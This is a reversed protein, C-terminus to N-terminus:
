QEDLAGLALTDYLTDLISNAPLDPWRQAWSGLLGRLKIPWEGREDREIVLYGVKRFREILEPSPQLGDVCDPCPKTVRLPTEYGQEYEEIYTGSGNCTPCTIWDRNVLDRIPGSDGDRASHYADMIAEDLTM